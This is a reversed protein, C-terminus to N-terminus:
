WGSCSTRSTVPVLDHSDSTDKTDELNASMTASWSDRKKTKSPQLTSVLLPKSDFHRSVNSLRGSFICAEDLRKDHSDPNLISYTPLEPFLHDISVPSSAPTPLGLLTRSDILTENAGLEFIPARSLILAQFALSAEKNRQAQEAQSNAAAAKSPSAKPDVAVAAVADGEKKVDEGKEGGVVEAEGEADREPETDLEGDADVDMESATSNRREGEVLSSTKSMRRQAMTSLALAPTSSGSADFNAPLFNPPSVTVCLSARQEPGARHWAKVARALNYATVVKWRTEQRFDTQM